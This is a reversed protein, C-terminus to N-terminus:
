ISRENTYCNINSIALTHIRQTLFFNNHVSGGIVYKHWNGIVQNFSFHGNQEDSLIATTEDAKELVENPMIVCLKGYEECMMMLDIDDDWPIFGGHRVAGLMTGGEAIFNIGYKNAVRQFECLMALEVVWIRKKESTVQYGNRVEADYFGNPLNIKINM